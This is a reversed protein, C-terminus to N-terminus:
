FGFSFGANVRTEDDFSPPIAGDQFKIVFHVADSNREVPIKLGVEVFHEADREAARVESPADLEWWFVLQTYLWTNPALVESTWGVEAMARSFVDDDTIAARGEDESADVYDLSAAFWPQQIPGISDRNIGLIPSLLLLPLPVGKETLRPFSYEASIALGGVFQQNDFGQDTEHRLHLGYNIVVSDELGNNKYEGPNVEQDAIIKGYYEDRKPNYWGREGQLSLSTVISDATSIEENGEDEPIRLFGKSSFSATVGEWGAGTENSVNVLDRDVAFDLDVSGSSGPLIDLHGWKGEVVSVFGDAPKRSDRNVPKWLLRTKWLFDPTGPFDRMEKALGDSPKLEYTSEPSLSPLYVNIKHVLTNGLDEEYVASFGAISPDATVVEGDKLIVWRKRFSERRDKEAQTPNDPDAFPAVTIEDIFRWYASPVNKELPITFVHESNWTVHSVDKAPAAFSRAAFIAVVFALLLIPSTKM